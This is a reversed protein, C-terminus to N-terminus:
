LGVCINITSSKRSNRATDTDLPLLDLPNLEQRLWRKDVKGCVNCTFEQEYYIGFKFQNIFDNLELYTNRSLKSYAIIKEENSLERGDISILSLAKAVLLTYKGQEYKLNDIEEKKKEKLQSLPSNAEKRNQVNKIKGGYKKAAIKQAEVVDGIRTLRFSYIHGDPNISIPEKIKIKAIEQEKTYEDINIIPNDKYRTYLYNKWDEDTMTEFQKKYYERLLEDAQEISKYQINNLDVISENVIRDEEDVDSQCNNCIWRHVHQTTNFQKKIGILSELFEEITMDAIKCKADENKLHEMIALINELIDDQRSLTLNNVDEVSYDKFFLTEPINFRGQSEFNVAVTGGRNYFKTDEKKEQQINVEQKKERRKKVEDPTLLINDESM